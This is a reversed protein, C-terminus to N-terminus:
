GEKQEEKKNVVVKSTRLVKNHLMYGKQIEDIIVRDPHQPSNVFSIAEHLFPDFSKNIAEIEKVGWSKLIQLLNKYLLDLAQILNQKEQEQHCNKKIRELDDVVTLLEKLLSMNAFKTYEEQQKQFQKCTNEYDAKLRILQDFYYKAKSAEEELKTYTEKEIMIVEREESKKVEINEKSNTKQNVKKEM